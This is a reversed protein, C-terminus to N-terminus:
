RYLRQQVAYILQGAAKSSIRGAALSLTTWHLMKMPDRFDPLPEGAAIAREVLRRQRRPDHFYCFKQHRM